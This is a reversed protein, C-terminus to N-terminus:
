EETTASNLRITFVYEKTYEQEEFGLYIDKDSTAKLIITRETNEEDVDKAFFFPNSVTTTVSSTMTSLDDTKSFIKLPTGDETEATWTLTADSTEPLSISMEYLVNSEWEYEQGTLMQRGYGNEPYCYALMGEYPTNESLNLTITGTNGNNDTATVTFTSLTEYTGISLGQKGSITTVSTRTVTENIKYEFTAGEDFGQPVFTYAGPVVNYATDATADKEIVIANFIPVVKFTYPKEKYTVKVTFNQRDNYALTLTGESYSTGAVKKEFTVEDITVGDEATVTFTLAEGYNLNRLYVKEGSQTYVNTPYSNEANPTISFLKAFEENGNEGDEEGDNVGIDVGIKDLLNLADDSVTEGNAYFGTSDDKGLDNATIFQGVVNIAYYYSDDMVKGLSIGNLLLGTASGSGIPSSWYVWGDTDYVWYNNTDEGNEYLSFWEEMSILGNANETYKATHTTNEVTKVNESYDTLNTFDNGIEDIDNSDSDYIETGIAEEDETYEKYDEYNQAFTGNIDAVLSDKNKNFTPMFVKEGGTEWNWYDDTANDTTFNHTIYSDVKDKTAGATIVETTEASTNKNMIIEFYEDLRVRAFIEDDAFNEVYVDKNTGDFDDHLRGGPNVVGEKENLAMQSISQWAFTGGLLLTMAVVLAIGATVAKKKKSKM